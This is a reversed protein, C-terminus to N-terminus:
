CQSLRCWLSVHNSIPHVQRQSVSCEIAEDDPESRARIRDSVVSGTCAYAILSVIAEGIAFPIQFANGVFTKWKPGVMEVTMNFGIMFLGM